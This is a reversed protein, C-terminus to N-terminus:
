ARAITSVGDPLKSEHLTSRMQICRSPASAEPPASAALGRIRVTVAAQLGAGVDGASVTREWV